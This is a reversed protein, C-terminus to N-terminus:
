QRFVQVASIHGCAPCFFGTGITSYRCCCADCSIDQRLSESAVMPLVIPVPEAHYSVSMRIDFLGSALTVPRTNRAARNFAQDLQELVYAQAVDGIYETQSANNFETPENREGCKPCFAAADPVKDRWDDFMVKFAARCENHPCQRDLYGKEDLPLQIPISVPENLGLQELERNFEDFM